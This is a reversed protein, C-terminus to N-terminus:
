VVEREGSPLRDREAELDELLSRGLSSSSGLPSWRCAASDSSGRPSASGGSGRRSSGGASGAAPSGGVSASVGSVSIGAGDDDGGDGGDGGGSGGAAGAAASSASSWPPLPLSVPSVAGSSDSVLTGGPLSPLPCSSM